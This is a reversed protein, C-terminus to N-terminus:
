ESEDSSDSDSKHEEAAAAEEEGAADAENAEELQAMLVAIVVNLLVFQAVVTFSGFFLAAIFPDSCCNHKCDIADDCDPASRQADSLMGSGNDGTSIRFLTLMAMPFNEFNALESFGSCENDATCALRGFM